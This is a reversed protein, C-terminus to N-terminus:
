GASSAVTKFDWSTNSFIYITYLYLLRVSFVFCFTQIFFTCTAFGVHAKNTSLCLWCKAQLMAVNIDLAVVVSCSHIIFEICCGPDLIFFAKNAQPPPLKGQHSSAFLLSETLCAPLIVVLKSRDILKLVGGCGKTYILTKHM